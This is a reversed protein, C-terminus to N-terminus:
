PPTPRPSTEPPTRLRHADQAIGAAASDTQPVAARRCRRAVLELLRHAVGRGPVELQEALDPAAGVAGDCVERAVAGPTAQDGEPRRRAASRAVFVQQLLHLAQVVLDRGRWASAWAAIHGQPSPVAEARRAAEIEPAVPGGASLAALRLQQLGHLLRRLSLELDEAFHAAHDPTRDDIERAVEGGPFDFREAELLVVIPFVRDAEGAHELPKGLRDRSVSRRRGRLRNERSAALLQRRARAAGRVDRAQRQAGGARDR